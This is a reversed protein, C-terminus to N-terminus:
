SSARGSVGKTALSSLHHWIHPNARLRLGCAYNVKRQLNQPLHCGRLHRWIELRLLFPTKPRAKLTALCAESRRPMDIPYAASLYYTFRPTAGDSGHRLRSDLTSLGVRGTAREGVSRAESFSEQSM